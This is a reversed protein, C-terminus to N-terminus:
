AHGAEATVTVPGPAIWLGQGAAYTVLGGLLASELGADVAWVPLAVKAVLAEHSIARSEKRLCAVVRDRVDEIRFVGEAM